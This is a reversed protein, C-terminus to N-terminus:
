RERCGNIFHNKGHTQNYEHCSRQGDRKIEGIWRVINKNQQYVETTNLNDFQLQTNKAISEKKVFFVASKIM